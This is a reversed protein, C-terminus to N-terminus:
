FPDEGKELAELDRRSVLVDSEKELKKTELVRYLKLANQSEEEDKRRRYAVAGVLSIGSGVCVAWMVWTAYYNLYWHEQAKAEIYNYAPNNLIETRENVMSDYRLKLDLCEPTPLSMESPMCEAVEQQMNPLNEGIEKLRRHYESHSLLNEAEMRYDTVAYTYGGSVLIGAVFLTGGAIKSIKM